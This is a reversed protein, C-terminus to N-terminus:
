GPDLQAVLGGGETRQVATAADFPSLEDDQPVVALTGPHTGM